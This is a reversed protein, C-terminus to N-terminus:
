KKEYLQVCSNDDFAEELFGFGLEDLENKLEEKDFKRSKFLLIDKYWAEIQKREKNLFWKLHTGDSFGKVGLLFENFLPNQSYNRFINELNNSLQFGIVLKDGQSMSKNFIEFIENNKFNGITNGLCIHAKKDYRSDEFDFDEKKAQQFLMNFPKFKIKRNGRRLNLLCQIFIGIFEKNVDIAVSEIYNEKELENMLLVLESDCLGTGWFVLCHKNLVGTIKTDKQLLPLESYATAYPHGYATIRQWLFAKRFWQEGEIEKRRLDEKLREDLEKENIRAEIENEKLVSFKM